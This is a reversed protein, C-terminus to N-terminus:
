TLSSNEFRIGSHHTMNGWLTHQARCHAIGTCCALAGSCARVKTTSVISYTRSCRRSGTADARTRKERLSRHQAFPERVRSIRPSHPMSQILSLRILRTFDSWYRLDRFPIAHRPKSLHQCFLATQRWLSFYVQGRWARWCAWIIALLRSSAPPSCPHFVVSALKRSKSRVIFPTASIGFAISRPNAIPTTLAHACRRPRPPSELDNPATAVASHNRPWHASSSQAFVFYCSCQRSRARTMRPGDEASVRQPSAKIQEACPFPCAHRTIQDLM